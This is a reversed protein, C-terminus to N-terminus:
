QLVQTPYTMGYTVAMWMYSNQKTHPPIVNTSPIAIAQQHPTLPPPGQVAPTANQNPPVGNQPANTTPQSSGQEQQKGWGTAGPPVLPVAAGSDSHESKLSPLNAPARRANPVKGLSQMGHKIYNSSNKQAPKETNEGNTWFDSRFSFRTHCTHSERESGIIQDDVSPERIPTPDSLRTGVKDLLGFM